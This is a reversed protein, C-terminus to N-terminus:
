RWRCGSVSAKAAAVQAFREEYNKGYLDISERIRKILACQFSKTSIRELLYRMANVESWYERDAYIQEATGGMKKALEILRPDLNNHGNTLFINRYTDILQNQMIVVSDESLMQSVHGFEHAIKTAALIERSRQYPLEIKLSSTVPYPLPSPYGEDIKCGLRITAATLVGSHNWKYKGTEAGFPNEASVTVTLIFGSRQAYMEWQRRGTETSLFEKRWREYRRKYKSHVVERIGGARELLFPEERPGVAYIQLPQRPQLNYDFRLESPDIEQGRATSQLAPAAAIIAMLMAGLIPLAVSQNRMAAEQNM